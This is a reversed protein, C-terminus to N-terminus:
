DILTEGIGKYVATQAEKALRQRDLEGKINVTVNRGNDRDIFNYLEPNDRYKNKGQLAHTQELDSYEAILGTIYGVAASLALAGATVLGVAPLGGGLLGIAAKSGVSIGLGLGTGLVSGAVNGGGGQPAQGEIIGSPQKQTKAPAAKPSTPANQRSLSATTLGDGGVSATVIGGGDDNLTPVTPATGGGPVGGSLFDFGLTVLKQSAMQAVAQLFTQLFQNVADILYDFFSKASEKNKDLEHGLEEHAGRLEVIKDNYKAAEESAAGYTQIAEERLREYDKLQQENLGLRFELEDQENQRASEDKFFQAPLTALSTLLNALGSQLSGLVGDMLEQFASKINAVEKGLGNRERQLAAVIFQFQEDSVDLGLQAALQTDPASLLASIQNLTAVLAKQEGNASDAFREKQANGLEGVFSQVFSEAQSGFSTREQPTEFKAGNLDLAQSRLNIDADTLEPNLLNLAKARDIQLAEIDERTEKITKNVGFLISNILELLNEPTMGLQIALEEFDAMALGPITSTLNELTLLGEQLVEDPVLGVLAEISSAYGSGFAAYDTLLQTFAARIQEQIADRETDSTALELKDQLAKINAGNADFLARTADGLEQIAAEPNSAAKASFETQLREFVARATSAAEETAALSREAFARTLASTDLTALTEPSLEALIGGILGELGHGLEQSDAESILTLLRDQLSDRGSRLQEALSNKADDTVARHALGETQSIADTLADVVGQADTAREAEAFLTSVYAAAAEGTLEASRLAQEAIRTEAAKGLKDAFKDGYLARYREVSDRISTLNARNTGVRNQFAASDPGQSLDASELARSSEDAYTDFAALIQNSLLESVVFQIQEPSLGKKALYDRLADPNLLLDTGINEALASGFTEFSGAQASTLNRAEDETFLGSDIAATFADGLEAASELLAVEADKGKLLAVFYPNGSRAQNADNLAASAKDIRTTFELKKQELTAKDLAVGSQKVDEALGQYVDPAVDRLADSVELQVSLSAFTNTLRHLLAKAADTTKDELADYQSQLKGLETVLKDVQSKEEEAKIQKNGREQAQPLDALAQRSNALVVNNAAIQKGLDVSAELGLELARENLTRNLESSVAELNKIGQVLDERQKAILTDLAERKAAFEEAPAADRIGTGNLATSFQEELKGLEDAFGKILNPLRAGLAELFGAFEGASASELARIDQIAQQARVSVTNLEAQAGERALRKSGLDSELTSLKNQETNLSVLAETSTQAQTKLSEVVERQAATSSELSTIDAGLGALSANLSARQAEALEARASAAERSGREFERYTSLTDTFESRFKGAVGSDDQATLKGASARFKETLKDLEGQAADLESQTAGLLYDRGADTKLSGLQTIVGRLRIIRETSTKARKVAALVNDTFRKDADQNLAQQTSASVEAVLVELRAEAQERPADALQEVEANAAALLRYLASNSDTVFLTAPELVSRIRERTADSAAQLTAAYVALAQRTGLVDLEQQKITQEIAHITDADAGGKKGIALAERSGALLETAADISAVYRETSEEVLGLRSQELTYRENAESLRKNAAKNAKNEFAQTRGKRIQVLGRSRSDLGDQLEAKQEPAVEGLADSDDLATQGEVLKAEIAKILALAGETTKDDLENLRAVLKDYEAFIREIGAKEEEAEIQREGRAQEAPLESLQGTLAEIIATLFALEGSIKNTEERSLNLANDLLFASLEEYAARMNELSLTIEARRKDILQALAERKGATAEEPAVDRIGVGDVSSTFGRKLNELEVNFAKLTEPLSASLAEIFSTLEESTATRAAYIDDLLQRTTNSVGDDEAIAGSRQTQLSQLTAERQTLESRAETYDLRYQATGDDQPLSNIVNKQAAVQAEAVRISEDLGAIVDQLAQHQAGALEQRLAVAEQSAKKFDTYSKLTDQLDSRFEEGVGGKKASTLKTAGDEFKSALAELDSTVSAFEGDIERLLYDAGATSNLSGVKGLLERLGAIRAAEDKTKKVVALARDAFRKDADYNVATATLAALEQQVAQLRGEAEERPANEIASLEAGVADYLKYLMSQSDTVFFTAPKLVNELKERTAKSARELSYVYATMSKQTATIDNEIRAVTNQLQNVEDGGEPAGSAIAEDLAAQATELLTQQAELSAVFRAKSNQMLNIKDVQLAYLENGEGIRAQAIIGYQEALAEDVEQLKKVDGEYSVRVGKLGEIVAQAQGIQNQYRTLEAENSTADYYELSFKKSDDINQQVDRQGLVTSVQAVSDRLPSDELTKLLKDFTDVDGVATIYDQAREVFEYLEDASLVQNAFFDDAFKGVGLNEPTQPKGEFELSYKDILGQFFAKDEALKARAKDGLSQVDTLLTEVNGLSTFEDAGPITLGGGSIILKQQAQPLSKFAEVFQNTNVELDNVEKRGEQYNKEGQATENRRNQAYNVVASGVAFAGTVLLLPGVGKALNLLLTMVAAFNKGQAALEAFGTAGKGLFSLMNKSLSTVSSLVSGAKEAGLVASLAASAKTVDGFQIFLFKLLRGTLNLGINIGGLTVLVQAAGVLLGLGPVQGLANIAGAIGELTKLVGLLVTQVTAFVRSEGGFGINKLLSQWSELIQASLDRQMREIDSPKGFLLDLPNTTDLQLANSMDKQLEQIVGTGKQVADNIRSQSDVVDFGTKGYYIAAASLEQYSFTMASQTKLLKNFADLSPQAYKGANQLLNSYTDVSVGRQQFGQFQELSSGILQKTDGGFKESSIRAKSLLGGINSTDIDKRALEDALKGLEGLAIGAEASLQELEGRLTKVQSAKESESGTNLLREYVEMNHTLEVIDKSTEAVSQITLFIAAAGLGGLVNSFVNKLEQSFAEVTPGFYRSFQSFAAENDGGPKLGTLAQFAQENRRNTSRQRGFKNDEAIRKNGIAAVGQEDLQGLNAVDLDGLDGLTSVRKNISAEVKSLEDIFDGARDFSARVHSLDINGKASRSKTITRLEGQFEKIYAEDFGAAKLQQGVFSGDKSLETLAKDFASFSKSLDGRFAGYRGKASNAKFSGLKDKFKTLQGLRADAEVQLGSFAENMGTVTGELAKTLETNAKIFGEVDTNEYALKADRKLSAVRNLQAEINKLKAEDILGGGQERLLSTIQRTGAENLKLSQQGLGQQAAVKNMMQEIPQLAKQIGRELGSLTANIEVDVRQAM